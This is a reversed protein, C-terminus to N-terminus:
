KELIKLLADFRYIKNRQRAPTFDYIIGAHKFKSILTFLTQNNKIGSLTRIAKSTFFPNVFLADLFEHAYKSNLTPMRSKLNEHLDLISKCTDQAKRAQLNLGRLFFLLWDEWNGKESVGLLLDYYDRRHEEFFESLYIFPYLLLKKQYLMLSILLRGIRGNGDEFPHIAEFQYHVVGIQVLVDREESHIYKELNSFLEPVADPLPAVYTAEEKTAGPKGIYVLKKRFEGPGRNHGRASNLLIAHLEKVINETLPHDKLKEVGHELAHRYNIIERFDKERPTEESKINKAEQELVEPLTVETGEIKSSLVAERTTLTRSLLGPNKLHVLLADLKAISAQAKSIEPVLKEYDIKPPLKPPNFPNKVM